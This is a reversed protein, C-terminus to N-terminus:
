RSPRHNWGILRYPRRPKEIITSSCNGLGSAAKEEALAQRYASADGLAVGPFLNSHFFDRRVLTKLDKKEPTAM